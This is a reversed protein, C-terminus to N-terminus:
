QVTVTLAPTVTQTITGSTGTVTVTYTGATTGPTGGGGGGGGGSSGGGCALMFILGSLTLCLLLLGLLKRRRSTLGAGLLTLGGLPLLMAYFTTRERMPRLSAVAAVTTVTLTSTGSGGAVSASSFNCTPPVAATPTSTIACTLAVASSFGNTPAVTVTSTSTAGPAVSAPTLATAAVTFSPTLPVATVTLNVTTMHSLVGSTGVVAINNYPGAPTAATSTVTLTASSGPNVSLPSISCSLGVNPPLGTCTTFVVPSTFGNIAGVAIAYSASSGAAVSQTTPTPTLSFDASTTKFSVAQIVWNESNVLPMTAECSGAAALIEQEAGDGITTLDVMAFKPDPGSVANSVTAGAVVLEGAASASCVGTDATASSGSNGAVATAGTDLPNNIDLGSYEFVRLDPATAGRGFHVTITNPTVGDGKINKAYYIVQSLSTGVIMPLAQTYTNGETDTVQTVTAVADSWGIIVANLNGKTQPNLMPASFNVSVSGTASDARQVYNIGTPNAAYTFAATNVMKGGDPNTVTVDAAGVSLAPTTATITGGANSVVVNGAPLGALAQGEYQPENFTVTAGALFNSGTLTVMTFGNTPGTAPTPAGFTPEELTFEFADADDASQGDVNTVIVDAGGSNHSPTLCNITTSSAVMCNVASVGGFSVTAGPAFNTGTITVGQGGTDSGGTPNVGGSSAITPAPVTTSAAGFVAAQDVWAGTATDTAAVTGTTAEVIDGATNGTNTDYAQDTFNGAPNPSFSGEAMGGVIVISNAAFTVNGSSATGNTGVGGSSTELPHTTAVGSVELIRLDPAQVNVNFAVTVTNPGM